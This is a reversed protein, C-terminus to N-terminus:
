VPWNETDWNETDHDPYQPNSAAIKAAREPMEDEMIRYQKGKGIQDLQPARMENGVSAETM